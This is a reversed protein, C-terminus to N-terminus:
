LNSFRFDVAFLIPEIEDACPINPMSVSLFTELNLSIIDYGTFVLAKNANQIVHILPKQLDVPM